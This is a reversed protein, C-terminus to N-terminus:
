GTPIRPDQVLYFTWRPTYDTMLFEFRATKLPDVKGNRFLLRDYPEFDRDFDAFNSSLINDPTKNRQDFSLGDGFVSPQNLIEQLEFQFEIWAQGSNNLVEIRMYMMGNAFEGAKGFAQIPKTTRITLTVPTSSNLEETIVFPDDKTGIGSAGTIRFGGLEDSFSYAGAAWVKVEDAAAHHPALVLLALLLARRIRGPPFLFRTSSFGAPGPIRM